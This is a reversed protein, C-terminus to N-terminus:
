FKCVIDLVPALASPVINALHHRTPWGRQQEAERVDYRSWVPTDQSFPEERWTDKSPTKM